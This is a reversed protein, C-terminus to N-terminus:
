CLSAVGTVFVLTAFLRLVVLLNKRNNKSSNALAAWISSMELAVHDIFRM